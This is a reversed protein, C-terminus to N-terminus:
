TELWPELSASEQQDISDSSLRRPLMHLPARLYPDALYTVVDIEVMERASRPGNSYLWPNRLQVKGELSQTLLKIAEGCHNSMYIDMLVMIPGTM